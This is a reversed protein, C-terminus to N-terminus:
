RDRSRQEYLKGLEHLRANIEQEQYVYKAPQRYRETLVDYVGELASTIQQDIANTVKASDLRTQHLSVLADYVLTARSWSGVGQVLAREVIQRSFQELARPGAATQQLQRAWAELQSSLSHAATEVQQRDARLSGMLQALDDLDRAMKEAASNDGGLVLSILEVYERPLHHNWDDWRITRGSLGGTRALNRQLSVNDQLDHHCASCSWESLEPWSTGEAARSELQQLASQSAAAQGLVWTLFAFNGHHREQDRREDWHKPLAQLYAGMEFQLRPHGAAILDHNVERGPGGVHCGTCVQARTFLNDTDWFGLKHKADRRKPEDGFGDRYHESLWGEAPGHCAECGVGDSFVEGAQNRAPAFTTSHCSLCRDDEHAGRTPDWDPGDLLQVMRLSRDDYLVSYAQAHPDEAIWINYESGVIQNPKGGGHCGSSTCAGVGVLRWGVQEAASENPQVVPTVEVAEPPSRDACGLCGLVVIMTTILTTILAARPFDARLFNIM